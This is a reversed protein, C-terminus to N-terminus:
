LLSNKVDNVFAETVNALNAIENMAFKNAALLNKVFEIKSEERGKELGQEIGEERGEKLGEKKAREM